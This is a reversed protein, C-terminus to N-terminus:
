AELAPAGPSFVADLLRYGDTGYQVALATRQAQSGPLRLDDIRAGYVRVWSQDITAALWDPAAAALAELAARVSEGALELRNLSRLRALVHTSHAQRM